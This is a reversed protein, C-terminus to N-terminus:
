VFFYWNMAVFSCCMMLTEALERSLSLGTIVPIFVLFIIGSENLATVWRHCVKTSQIFNSSDVGIEGGENTARGEVNRRDFAQVGIALGVNIDLQNVSAFAGPRALASRDNPRFTALQFNWLHDVLDDQHTEGKTRGHSKTGKWRLPVPRNM